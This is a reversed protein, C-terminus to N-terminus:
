RLVTKIWTKFGEKTWIYWSFYKNPPVCQYQHDSVPSIACQLSGVVLEYRLNKLAKVNSEHGKSLPIIRSGTTYSTIRCNYVLFSSSWSVRLSSVSTLTEHEAPAPWHCLNVPIQSLLLLLLESIHHCASGNKTVNSFISFIDRSIEHSFIGLYGPIDCHLSINKLWSINETM